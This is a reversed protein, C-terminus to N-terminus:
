PWVTPAPATARARTFRRCSTRAPARAPDLLAAARAPHGHAHTDDSLGPGGHWRFRLPKAFSPGSLVFVPQPANTDDLAPMTLTEASTNRLTLDVRLNEGQVVTAEPTEIHIEV